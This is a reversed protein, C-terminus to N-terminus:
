PIKYPSSTISPMISWCPPWRGGERQLLFHGINHGPALAEGDIDPYESLRTGPWDGLQEGRVPHGAHWLQLIHCFTQPLLSSAPPFPRLEWYGRHDQTEQLFHPLGLVAPTIDHHQPRGGAKAEKAEEPHPLCDNGRVGLKIRSGMQHLTVDLHVARDQAVTTPPVCLPTSSQGRGRRPWLIGWPLRFTATGLLPQGTTNPAAHSDSPAATQKWRRDTGAMIRDPLPYSPWPTSM